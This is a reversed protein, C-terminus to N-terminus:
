RSPPLEELLKTHGWNETNFGKWGSIDLTVSKKKKALSKVTIQVQLPGQLFIKCHLRLLIDSRKINSPLFSRMMLEPIYILLRHCTISFYNMLHNGPIFHRNFALIRSLLLEQWIINNHFHSCSSPPPSVSRM